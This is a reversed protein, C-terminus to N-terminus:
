HVREYMVARKGRAVERWKKDAGALYREIPPKEKEPPNTMVIAREFKYRAAWEEFVPGLQEPPLGMAESYGRIWDDGYLECRDDMFIKLNPTHYILYGGLNADNFIPTGPPVRAAYETLERTMDSPIFDPDLRAWGSGVVPVEVHKVQLVFAFVVALAPLAFALPGGRRSAALAADETNWATSGDGHKVLLRHWLTHKWLDAIAVAACVAFLPGQRIGKFSLAFWVLPILWSVRPLKPLTGALMVVYFLGLAIITLGLPSSPDLPMHENVVEPLVKSGVIRQWIRIMELGHPNVLPTLGCAAVIGVLLFATRWSTIPTPPLRSSGLGGPGGERFPLPTPEPVAEQAVLSTPEATETSAEGPNVGRGGPLPAPPTPEERGATARRLLFLVGWGAVALGLTMTGGLVGGHLNVWLVYLPILGALRWATCRGREYDVVCMMTWGLFAITFMHPRVFYHFAGVFLIGGVIVGALIPGMGGQVCRRFILTYLLAVGAAFGLLMADLGGARHALAMLVEAGWQQPVWKQGEFTYSFPDTQPMGRDLIIEGVKVHWLAGPDYFGRDRFAVMLGLWTLLFFVTEPRFLRKM